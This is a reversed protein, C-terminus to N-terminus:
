VISSVNLFICTETSLFPHGMKGWLLVLGSAMNEEIRNDWNQVKIERMNYCM